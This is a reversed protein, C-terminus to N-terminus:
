RLNGASHKRLNELSASIAELTDSIKLIFSNINKLFVFKLNEISM